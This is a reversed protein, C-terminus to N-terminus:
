KRTQSFRNAFLVLVLLLGVAGVQWVTNLGSQLMATKLTVILLVAALVGVLAGRGGNIALGGLMVATLAELELNVGINARASGLWALSVFGALGGLAGSAVFLLFRLRDVPLGSLHAAKENYGTAMIWRGWTTHHMMVIALLFLPVVLSLFPLPFNGWLGRGWAVLGEAVVPINGGGTIALAAGSFIYFSGLTVILPMLKLRTVMFGNFGGMVAGALLCTPLLAWVPLGAGLAMAGLVAAMSTIGGVSLDVNSGSLMVLAMGLSVLALITSFQLVSIVTLGSLMWSQYFAIWGILLLWFTVLMMHVLQGRVLYIFHAWSQIKRPARTQQTLDSM